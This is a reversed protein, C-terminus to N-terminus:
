QYNGTLPDIWDKMVTLTLIITAGDPDVYECAKDCQEVQIKEWIKRAWAHCTSPIPIPRNNLDQAPIWESVQSPHVATTDTFGYWKEIQTNGNTPNEFGAFSMVVDANSKVCITPGIGAFCGIKRIRWLTKKGEISWRIWQAVSVSDKFPIVWTQKNCSDAQLHYDLWLRGRATSKGTQEEWTNGCDPSYWSPREQLVAFAVLSFLCVLLLTKRLM